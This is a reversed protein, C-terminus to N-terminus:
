EAVTETGDRVAFAGRVPTGTPQYVAFIGGTSSTESSTLKMSAPPSGPEFLRKGEGLVVPFILVNLEDVLGAGLLTQILQYSGHVQLEDGPREKLQRIAEVVDGTVPHSNNWPLDDPRSTVVHKPLNNLKAAGEKEPDTVQSWYPYMLDYTTRGLLFEGTREFIAAVFRNFDEDVFPVLWGGQEFGNSTDEDPAGPGQMVGDLSIFTTVTLKM